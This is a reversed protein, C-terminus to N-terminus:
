HQNHNITDKIESQEIPIKYFTHALAYWFFMMIVLMPVRLTRFFNIPAIRTHLIILIVALIVFIYNIKIKGEGRWKKIHEMSFFMGIIFAPIEVSFILAYYYNAFEVTRCFYEIVYCILLILIIYLAKVISQKKNM